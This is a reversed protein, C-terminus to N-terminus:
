PHQKGTNQAKRILDALTGAIANSREAALSSKDRMDAAGGNLETMNRAIAQMSQVTGDMNTMIGHMHDSVVTVSKSVHNAGQAVDSVNNSIENITATQEEVANAIMTNIDNVDRIISTIAQTSDVSSQTIRQIDEIQNRIDETAKASQNALAKVENAVVAFGRGADGASAAEITANLALLNTQNAIGKILEVVKGISKASEGLQNLIAATENAKQSAQESMRSAQGTNNAVESLSSSMEEIAGAVTQVSASMEEAASAVTNINDSVETIREGTTEINQSMTGTADFVAQINASSQEVAVAVGSVSGDLDQVYGQVEKLSTLLLTNSKEALDSAVEIQTLNESVIAAIGRLTNLRSESPIIEVTTFFDMTGRFVGGVVIPFCVGSKVGARQAPELRCCDTMEGLDKVFMLEGRQWTKGSFGVGKEFTANRTVEAFEPTVTGSETVFKLANLGEDYGWFSGYAWGFEKRVSNLTALLIKNYDSEANVVKLTNLLAATNEESERLQQNLGNIGGELVNENAHIASKAFSFLSM